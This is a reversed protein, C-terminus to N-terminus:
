GFCINEGDRAGQQIKGCSLRLVFVWSAALAAAAAAHLLELTRARFHVQYVVRAFRLSVLKKLTEVISKLNFRHTQMTNKEMRNAMLVYWRDLSADSAFYSFYLCHLTTCAVATVLGEGPAFLFKQSPASKRRAVFAPPTLDCGLVLRGCMSGIVGFGNRFRLRLTIGRNVCRFRTLLPPALQKEPTTVGVVYIKGSYTTTM